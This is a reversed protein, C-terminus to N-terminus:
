TWVHAQRGCAIVVDHEERQQAAAQEEQGQQQVESSVNLELARHASSSDVDTEMNNTPSAGAHAPWRVSSSSPM